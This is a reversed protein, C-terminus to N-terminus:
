FWITSTLLEIEKLVKLELKDFDFNRLKHAIGKKEFEDFDSKVALRVFSYGEGVISNDKKYIRMGQCIWMTKTERTIELISSNWRTQYFVNAGVSLIEM